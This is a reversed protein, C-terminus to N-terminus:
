EWTRHCEAVHEKGDYEEIVWKVDDPVEVVKLEAYNGDCAKVGLQDIVQLLVPDNREIDFTAYFTTADQAIGAYARYLAEARESIGFGGHCTNIVIRQM